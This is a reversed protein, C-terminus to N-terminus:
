AVGGEGDKYGSGEQYANWELEVVRERIRKQVFQIYGISGSLHGKPLHGFDKEHEHHRPKESPEAHLRHQQHSHRSPSRAVCQEGSAVVASLRPHKVRADEQVSDTVIEEEDGSL